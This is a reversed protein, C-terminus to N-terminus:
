WVKYMHADSNYCAILLNNRVKDLYIGYPQYLGDDKGVLRRAHKGDPSIVVISNNGYSAVYVNADKDTTVGRINKLVSKDNYEWVKEGISTYCTVTDTTPNTHYLKGGSATVHNLSSMEPQEVVTCANNGCFDVSLIGNGKSCYILREQEITIGHCKKSIKIQKEIQETSINIIEIEFPAYDGHSVAINKEDIFSVDFPPRITKIKFVFSQHLVFVTHYKLDVLIVDGTPSITCGSFKSNKQVGPITLKKHTLHINNITKTGISPVVLYQAQKNKETQMSVTFSSSSRSIKGYGVITLIDSMNKDVKFDLDVQQVSGNELLSMVFKEAHDIDTEVKKMGIFIQLNSAYKKIASINIDLEEANKTHKLLKTRICRIESSVGKEMDGLDQLIKQEITDLHQNIKDRMTQIESQIKMKQLQVKLLNQDRDDIIRKLNDKIDNLRQKVDDFMASTKSDKIIEDLSKLDCKKHNTTVCLPCCPSEHQLCYLQYKKDHESCCHQVSAVFSPLQRYNDVSIIEHTKLLKSANHYKLCTSCLGEDCEPCWFTADTTVHQSECVGCLTGSSKAM